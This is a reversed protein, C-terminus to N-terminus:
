DDSGYHRVRKPGMQRPCMRRALLWGFLLLMGLWVAGLQYSLASPEAEAARQLRKEEAELKHRMADIEDHGHKTAPAPAIAPAIGHKPRKHGIVDPEIEDDDDKKGKRKGKKARKAKKSSKQEPTGGVGAAGGGRLRAVAATV